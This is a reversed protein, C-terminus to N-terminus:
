ALDEPLTSQLHEILEDATDFPGYSRGEHLDKLGEEISKQAEPGIPEDTYPVDIVRGFEAEILDGPQAGLKELIEKPVSVKNDPGIRVVSM